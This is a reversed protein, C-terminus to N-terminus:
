CPACEPQSCLNTHSRQSHRRECGPIGMNHKEGTVLIYLPTNQPVPWCDIKGDLSKVSTTDAAFSSLTANFAILFLLFIHKRKMCRQPM